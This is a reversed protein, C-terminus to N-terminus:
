PRGSSGNQRHHSNGNSYRPQPPRRFPQGNSNISTTLPPIFLGHSPIPLPLPLGGSLGLSAMGNVLGNIPFQQNPNPLARFGNAAPYPPLGQGFMVGFPPPNYMPGSLANINHMRPTRRPLFDRPQPGRNWMSDSRPTGSGSGGDRSGSPSSNPGAGAQQEWAERQGSSDQT